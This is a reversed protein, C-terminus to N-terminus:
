HRGIFDICSQILSIIKDLLDPEGITLLGLIVFWKFSIYDPKPIDM